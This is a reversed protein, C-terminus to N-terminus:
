DIEQYFHLGCTSKSCVEVISEFCLCHHCRRRCCRRYQHHHDQGNRTSEPHCGCKCWDDRSVRTDGRSRGRYPLRGCAEELRRGGGISGGAGVLVGFGLLFLGDTGFANQRSDLGGAAEMESVVESRDALPDVELVLVLVVVIPFHNRDFVEKADNIQVGNGHGVIGLFELLTGQRTSGQVNGSSDIRGLRFDKDLGMDRGMGLKGPQEVADRRHVPQLAHDLELFLGFLLAFGDTDTEEGVGNEHGGVNHEVLGGLDGNALVLPLM